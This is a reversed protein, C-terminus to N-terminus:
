AVGDEETPDYNELFCEIHLAVPQDELFVVAYIESLDILKECAACDVYRDFVEIEPFKDYSAM